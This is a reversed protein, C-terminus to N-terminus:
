SGFLRGLISGRDTSANLIQQLEQAEVLRPDLQLAKENARQADAPADAQWHLYAVRYWLWPNDPDFHIAERYSELAAENNGTESYLDAMISRVRLRQPVTEASQIAKECWNLAQPLDGASRWYDIEARALYYHGREQDHLYDLVIRADDLRQSYVYIFGEVVNIDTIDPALEQAKELWQLAADLGESAYTGDAERAAALATLAVGTYEYPLSNATQFTRLAEALTRPDGRFADVRDRGVEFVKYGAPTLADISSFKIKELAPLLQNLLTKGV